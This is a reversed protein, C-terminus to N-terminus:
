ALVIDVSATNMASPPLAQATLASGRLLTPAACIRVPATPELSIRLRLMREISMRSRAIVSRSM